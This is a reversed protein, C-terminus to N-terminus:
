TNYCVQFVNDDLDSSEDSVSSDKEANGDDSNGMPKKSINSESLVDTSDGGDSKVNGEKGDSM